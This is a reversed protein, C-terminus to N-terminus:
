LYFFCRFYSIPLNSFLFNFPMITFPFFAFYTLLPFTYPPAPPISSPLNQGALSFTRLTQPGPPAQRRRRYLWLAARKLVDSVPCPPSMAAVREYRRERFDRFRWRVRRYSPRVVTASCPSRSCPPWRRLRPENDRCKKGGNWYGSTVSGEESWGRIGCQRGCGGGRGGGEECAHPRGRQIQMCPGHALSGEEYELRAEKQRKQTKM